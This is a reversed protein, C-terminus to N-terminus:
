STLQSQIPASLSISGLNFSTTKLNHAINIILKQPYNRFTMQLLDKQKYWNSLFSSPEGAESSRRRRWFIIKSFIDEVELLKPIPNFFVRPSYGTTRTHKERYIQIPHSKVVKLWYQGYGLFARNSGKLGDCIRQGRVM